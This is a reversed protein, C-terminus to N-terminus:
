DNAGTPRTLTLHLNDLFGSEFGAECLTLYFQWKRQYTGDYGMRVFQKSNTDFAARWRRLTEPYHHGVSELKAIGLTSGRNMAKSLETLSPLMGGPCIHKQVWTPKYLYTDYYQSPLTVVQLVARGGPNLLRDCAGFFTGYQIYSITQLYEISVIRDFRGEVESFMRLDVHIQGELNEASVRERAYRYEEESDTIATVRCGTAKATEIAFAGRGCGIDLIHHEPQIDARKILKRIMKRHAETLPEDSSEFLASSCMLTEPDLFLEYFNSKLENNMCTGRRKEVETNRKLAHQLIPKLRNTNSFTIGRGKMVNQNLIFIKLVELLNDSEWGNDMWSDGMGINGATALQSFFTYRNVTIQATPQSTDGYHREAGNPLLVKLHGKKIQEFRREVIEQCKQTILKVM